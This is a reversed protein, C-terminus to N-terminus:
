CSTLLAKEDGIDTNAHDLCRKKDALMKKMMKKNDAVDEKV